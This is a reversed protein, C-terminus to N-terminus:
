TKGFIRLTYLQVKSRVRQIFPMIRTCTDGYSHVATFMNVLFSFNHYVVVVRVRIVYLQVCFYLDFLDGIM